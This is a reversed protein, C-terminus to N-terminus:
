NTFSNLRNKIVGGITDYGMMNALSSNIVLVDLINDVFKKNRIYNHLIANKEDEKESFYLGRCLKNSVQNFNYNGLTFSQDFDIINIKDNEIVINRKNSDSSIDNLLILNLFVEMRALDKYFKMSQDFHEYELDELTTGSVESMALTNNNAIFDIKKRKLLNNYLMIGLYRRPNSDKFYFYKREPIDGNITVRLPNTTCNCMVELNEIFIKTPEYIGFLQRATDIIKPKFWTIEPYPLSVRHKLNSNLSILSTDRCTLEKLENFDPIEPYYERFWSQQFLIKKLNIEEIKEQSTNSM